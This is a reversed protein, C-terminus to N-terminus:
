LLGHERFSYYENDGIIIHDSLDIGILAGAQSVQETVNKDSQSPVAMGSPHNHLLIIRVARHEMAKLFIERPSILSANVTGISVVEDGLLRCKADFMCVILREQQEHRLQEMYYVAVSRADQLAIRRFRETCAIRKSLEGICKLQIAKVQGIGAFQQLETLSLSYINLLQGCDAELIDRALEVATKGNTGTRLIVALLESDTLFEAGKALCKEYPLETGTMNKSNKYM